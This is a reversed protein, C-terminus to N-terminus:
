GPKLKALGEATTLFIGKEAELRATKCFGTDPVGPALITRERFGTDAAAYQTRRMLTV